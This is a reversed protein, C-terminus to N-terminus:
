SAAAASRRLKFVHFVCGGSVFCCLLCVQEFTIKLSTPSMKSLTAVLSDAWPTSEARLSSVVGEVSSASFCSCVVVVVIQVTTTHSRSRGTLRLARM